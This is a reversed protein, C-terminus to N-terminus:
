KVSPAPRLILYDVGVMHAPIARPDAGVIRIRLEHPGAELAARGIEFEGSASVKADYGEFATGFPNGDLTFAVNAYDPARTFQASLVHPGAQAAELTLHLEDGPKAGTWWLQEDRSWSDGFGAMDQVEIRGWTVRATSLLLEGEIAGAVKSAVAPLPRAARASASPLPPTADGAGAAAYWYAVTAYDLETDAWHWVELDFRLSKEFPISDGLHFRVLSTFGRNGPGDCRSQAHFLSSFPTPDCWAYGFYDETGTGFTSPFREGDVFAHEDGEGWWARVPNRVSLACGVFRGPGNAELVVFDRHPRTPMSFAQRYKAHFRLPAPNRERDVIWSLGIRLPATGENSVVLRASRSFPMPLRLVGVGDGSVSAALTRFPTWGPATGFLDGLPSSVSPATEGDFAIEIRASRLAATLDDSVVKGILARVTGPGEISRESAGGPSLEAWSLGSELPVPGMSRRAREFVEAVAPTQLSEVRFTEARDGEAFQRVNVHYYFNSESSTIKVSKSFPIPVYCNWGRARVGCLPEVFPAKTGGCLEQFPITWRPAKEGDFYFYLLGAPNASWIRVVAGPGQCEALVHETHGDRTETGLFRGYDDNAFWAEADAPGRESRRDYSSFQVCREGNRPPSALWDLEVLDWLLSELTHVRPPDQAGASASFGLFLLWPIWTRTM